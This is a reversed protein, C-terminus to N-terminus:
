GLKDVFNNWQIKEVLKGVLQEGWNEKFMKVWSNLGDKGSKKQGYKVCKKGSFKDEQNKWGIKQVQNTLGLKKDLKKWM